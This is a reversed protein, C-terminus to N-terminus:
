FQNMGTFRTSGGPRNSNCIASTIRSDFVEIRCSGTSSTVRLGNASSAFSQMRAQIVFNTAGTAKIDRRSDFTAQYQMQTGTGPPVFLQLSLRGQNFSLSADANRGGGFVAGTARGRGDFSGSTPPSAGPPTVSPPSGGGGLTVSLVTGNLTSVRCEATQGTQTNRMYLTRAGSEPSVPGAGTVTINRTAVTMEEATRQICANADRSSIPQAVGPSAVLLAGLAIASRSVVFGFVPNKMPM